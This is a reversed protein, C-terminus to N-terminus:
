RLACRVFLVVEILGLCVCLLATATAGLSLGVETIAREAWYDQGLWRM